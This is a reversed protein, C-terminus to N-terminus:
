EIDNGYGHVDMGPLIFFHFFFLKRQQKKFIKIRDQGHSGGVKAEKCNIPKKIGGGRNDCEADPLRLVM